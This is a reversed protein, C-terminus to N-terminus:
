TSAAPLAESPSQMHPGSLSRYLATDIRSNHPRADGTSPSPADVVRDPGYGLHVAAMRAFASKTTQEDASVHIVGRHKQELLFLVADAVDETRTYYRVTEADLHLTQGDAFLGAFKTLVNASDGLDTRYLAPIRVILHNDVTASAQEGALKSKGYVNIPCPADSESYPPNNGDFVYDTSIYCLVAKVAQAAEAIVRSARVNVMDTEEPHKLCYDPDRIAACHIIHTFGSEQIAAKVHDPREFDLQLLGERPSRHCAGVVNMSANTRRLIEGGLMGSAGTILLKKM